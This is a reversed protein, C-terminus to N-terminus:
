LLYIAPESFTAISIPCLSAITQHDSLYIKANNQIGLHGIGLSSSVPTPKKRDKKDTHLQTHTQSTYINLKRKRKKYKECTNM